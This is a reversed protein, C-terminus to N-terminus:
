KSFITSVFCVSTSSERRAHTSGVATALNKVVSYLIDPRTTVTVYYYTYLQVYENNMTNYNLFIKEKESGLTEFFTSLCKEKHRQHIINVLFYSLTRIALSVHLNLHSCNACDKKFILICAKFQGPHKLRWFRQPLWWSSTRLNGFCGWSAWNPSNSALNHPELSSLTKRFNNQYEIKPAM